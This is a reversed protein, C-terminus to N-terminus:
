PMNRIGYATVQNLVGWGATVGDTVRIWTLANARTAGPLVYVIKGAAWKTLGPGRSCTSGPRGSAGCM